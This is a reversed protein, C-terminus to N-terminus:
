RGHRCHEATSRKSRNAPPNNLTRLAISLPGDRVVSSRQPWASNTYPYGRLTPSICASIPNRTLLDCYPPRNDESDRARRYVLAQHIDDIVSFNRCNGSLFPLTVSPYYQRTTPYATVTELSHAPSPLLDPPPSSYQRHSRVSMTFASFDFIPHMESSSLFQFMMPTSQLVVERLEVVYHLSM